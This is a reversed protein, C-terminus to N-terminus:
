NFLTIYKSLYHRGLESKSSEKLTSLKLIDDFAEHGPPLSVAANSSSTVIKDSLAKLAAPDIEM